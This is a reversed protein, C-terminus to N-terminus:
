MRYLSLSEIRLRHMDNVVSKMSHIKTGINQKTGIDRDDAYMSESKTGSIM